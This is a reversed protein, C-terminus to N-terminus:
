NKQKINLHWMFFGIPFYYISSIWNNFFNGAPIIPWLTILFSSLLCVEFMSNANNFLKKGSYWVLYFFLFSIIFFGIIGTEALLQFYTGHPHTMCASKSVYYKPEKCLIRFTKPGSGLLKNDKFIKYSVHYHDEHIQSFLKIEKLSQNLTSLKIEKDEIKYNFVQKITGNYIRNVSDPNFFIFLPLIFLTSIILNKFKRLKLFFIFFLSLLFLFFATREGALLILISNTIFLFNILYLNYKEILKEDILYYSIALFVPLLRAIYSGMVLEDGFLSSVRNRVLEDGLINVGFYYQYLSDFFLVFFILCFSYFIQKIIKINNELVYWVCLSFILFRFYFISTKLSYFLESSLLSSLLCILNFFLLILFLKNKYYNFLKNKLTNILFLIACTSVALDTLFSGSVMFIPLMVILFSPIRIMIFYESFMERNLNFKM